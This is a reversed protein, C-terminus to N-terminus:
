GRKRFGLQIGDSTKEITQYQNKLTHDEQPYDTRRHLERTEKRNRSMYFVAEGLDLMDFVELARMLEHADAAGMQEEAMDKLHRIYSIGATLMTESRGEYGAYDKMISQLTGNAERWHAGHEGRELMGNILATKERMVPHNEIEEWDIAANKRFASEAAIMGFVAAATSHGNVNGVAYGAAYLNELTASADERIEIGRHVFDMGYFSFEMLDKSVDVRNQRIYDALSDIGDKEFNDNMYALDAEGTHTCNMYVPGTGDKAKELFIDPWIDPTIDGMKRSPIKMYPGISRGYIDSILGIWSGKGGREFYKPGIHVAPIDLNILRAGARYAMAHGSGTSAPCSPTNFLFAPNVGPYLRSVLGTALLTSKAQFLVLEPEEKDMRIGMAGIVKGAGNTLIECVATKNMIRSGSRLAEATLLKKINSGEYKLHYSQQGPFTHGEFNWSGNPRMCIGYSEWAQVVEYSRAMWTKLMSMDQWSGGDMTNSMERVAFDFNKGHYEPIYCAFHDNGNAACGSRRTDAKEVVLTDLGLRAGTIAAQLGGIGGGIILFDVKEVKGCQQLNM